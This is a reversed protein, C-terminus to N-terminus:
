AHSQPVSLLSSMLGLSKSRSNTFKVPFFAVATKDQLKSGLYHRKRHGVPTFSGRICCLEKNKIADNKKGESHWNMATQCRENKLGAEKQVNQFLGCSTVLIVVQVEKGKILEPWNLTNRRGEKQRRTWSSFVGTTQLVRSGSEYKKNGRKLTCGMCKQYVSETDITRFMDSNQNKFSYGFFHKETETPLYM